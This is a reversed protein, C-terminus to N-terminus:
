TSRTGEGNEEINGQGDISVRRGTPDEGTQTLWRLGAQRQGDSVKIRMSAPRMTWTRYNAVYLDLDGDGDGRSRSRCAAPCGDLGALRTADEFRGNAM